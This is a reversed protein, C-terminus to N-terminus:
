ESYTCIAAPTDGLGDPAKEEGASGVKIQGRTINKELLAPGSGNKGSDILSIYYKFNDTADSSGDGVDGTNHIWVKGSTYPKGFSSSSGGRELLKEIYNTTTGNSTTILNIVVYQGPGPLQCISRDADEFENDVMGTRVADIIKKANTAFTDRRSRAIATTIAPIATIMLVAMIVIVALLEILTFGKKNMNDNKKKANTNVKKNKANKSNSNNKM